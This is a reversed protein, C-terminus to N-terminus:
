FPIGLQDPRIGAADQLEALDGASAKGTPRTLVYNFRDLLREARQLAWTAGHAEAKQPDDKHLGRLLVFYAAFEWTFELAGHEMLDVMRSFRELAELDINLPLTKM